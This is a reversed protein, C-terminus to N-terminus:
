IFSIALVTVRMSLFVDTEVEPILADNMPPEGANWEWDEGREGRVRGDNGGTATKSLRSLGSKTCRVESFRLSLEEAAQKRGDLSRRSFLREAVSSDVNDGASNDSVVGGKGTDDEVVDVGM